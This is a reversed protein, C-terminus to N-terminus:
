RAKFMGMEEKAMNEENVLDPRQGLSALVPVATHWPHAWTCLQSCSSGGAMSGNRDKGGGRRLFFLGRSNNYFAKNLLETGM